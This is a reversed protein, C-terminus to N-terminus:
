RGPGGCPSGPAATGWTGTCPAPRTPQQLGLPAVSPPTGVWVQSLAGIWLRAHTLTHAFMHHFIDSWFHRQFRPPRSLSLSLALLFHQITLATPTPPRPSPRHSLPLPLLLPSSHPRHGGEGRLKRQLRQSVRSLLTMTADLVPGAVAPSWCDQAACLSLLVAALEVLQTSQETAARSVPMGSAMRAEGVFQMITVLIAARDQM